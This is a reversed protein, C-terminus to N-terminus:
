VALADEVDGSTVYLIVLGINADTKRPNIETAANFAIFVEEYDGNSLYRDGM